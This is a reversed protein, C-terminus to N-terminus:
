YYYKVKNNSYYSALQGRECDELFDIFMMFTATERSYENSGRESYKVTQFMKRLKDTFYLLYASHNLNCFQM